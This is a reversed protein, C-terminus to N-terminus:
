FCTHSSQGAAPSQIVAANSRWLMAAEQLQGGVPPWPLEPKVEHWGSPVSSGECGAFVGSGCSGEHARGDTDNM